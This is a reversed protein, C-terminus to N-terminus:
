ATRDPNQGPWRNVSSSTRATTWRRPIDGTADPTPLPVDPSDFVWFEWLSFGWETARTLCELRVYRGRASVLFDDVGGNGNTEEAIDTWTANDDSVQVKYAKGYAAEWQLYV